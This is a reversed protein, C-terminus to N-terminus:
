LDESEVTALDCTFWLNNSFGLGRKALHILLTYITNLIQTLEVTVDLLSALRCM